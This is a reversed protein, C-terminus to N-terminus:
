RAVRALDHSHITSFPFTHTLNLSLSKLCLIAGGENLREAFFIVWCHLPCYLNFRGKFKHKKPPFCGRCIVKDAYIISCVLKTSWGTWTQGKGGAKIM